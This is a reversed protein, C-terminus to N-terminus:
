SDEMLFAM